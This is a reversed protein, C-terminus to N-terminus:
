DLTITGDEHATFEPISAIRQEIQATMEPDRDSILEQLFQVLASSSEFLEAAHAGLAALRDAATVGGAPASCTSARKGHRSSATPSAVRHKHFFPSRRAFDSPHRFSRSDQGQSGPRLALRPGDGRHRSFPTRPRTTASASPLFTSPPPARLFRNPSSVPISPHRALALKCGHSSRGTMTKSRDKQNRGQGETATCRRDIGIRALLLDRLRRLTGPDPRHTPRNKTPHDPVIPSTTVLQLTRGPARPM